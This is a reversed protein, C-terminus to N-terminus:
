VGIRVRPDLLPYLIDILLNVLVYTTAVLIMIGQVMFYDRAYVSTVLLRGLGPLTFVTEIVAAGGLLSGLVLGVLTMTPIMTNRLAHRFLITRENLGKARASTIYEQQLVEIMTSRVMRLLGGTEAIVLATIPLILFLVGTALDEFPSVYGVTPLWQLKIGLVIILAIGVWFSPISMSIVAFSTILLDPTRNHQWAAISGGVIAIITALVVSIIVVQATVGFRDLMAEMVPEGTVISHGFDLRVIRSLWDLYQIMVPRDLGLERRLQEVLEPNNVDRMVMLVPDGPVLQMVLFVTLTVILLTPVIMLMRKIVYAIM